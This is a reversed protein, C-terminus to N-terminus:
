PGINFELEVEGEEELLVMRGKELVSLADIWAKAENISALTEDAQDSDSFILKLSYAALALKATKGGTELDIWASAVAGGDAPSVRSLSTKDPAAGAAAYRQVLRELASSSSCLSDRICM